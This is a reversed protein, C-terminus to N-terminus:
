PIPEFLTSLIQLEFCNRFIVDWPIAIYLLLMYLLQNSLDIHTINAVQYMHEIPKRGAVVSLIQSYHQGVM